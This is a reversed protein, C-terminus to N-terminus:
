LLDLWFENRELPTQPHINPNHIRIVRRGEVNSRSLADKVMPHSFFFEDYKGNQMAAELGRYIIDHLEQNDPAVYFNMTLPYVLLLNKEVTLDLEPFNTMEAWPEHVGRPFYDFRGGDAMHFLSEYKNATIVNLGASRLIETDGWDIGQGAKLAKLDELTQVHNFKHQDEPRIIFVRHGLLGKLAPIRIAKLREERAPTSSGWVVSMNNGSILDAEARSQPIFEAPSEFKANPEIEKIAIKLIGLLLGEKDDLVANHHITLSHGAASWLLTIFVMAGVVLRRVVGPTAASAPRPQILKM